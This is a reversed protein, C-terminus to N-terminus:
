MLETILLYFYQFTHEEEETLCIVESLFAVLTQSLRAPMEAGCMQESMRRLHSSFIIPFIFTHPSSLQCPLDFAEVHVLSGFCPIWKSNGMLLCVNLWKWSLPVVLYLTKKPISIGYTRKESCPAMHQPIDKEDAKILQGPQAMVWIWSCRWGGRQCSLPLLQFTRSKSYVSSLLLLFMPTNDPNYIVFIYIYLMTKKKKGSKKPWWLDM